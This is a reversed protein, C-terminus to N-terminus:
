IKKLAEEQDIEHLKNIMPEIQGDMFGPLNSLSFGIRHDTVRDQPFNYTRIKESRDGTGIQSKRADGRKKAEEEEKLALLRSRLVRFAKEKNKIQSKEDQCSVILGTPLHTLRVASDTTNVSQGGPGSSRFVDVRVDNPAIEIDVEEAEPLVAVTVTSTHVRGSSETEPVRQVRHVGSEYKLWKYTNKGKISFIIEKFGGIENENSDLIEIELKKQEAFKAYMRFLETAFLASEDGGAGARIEMIVNKSDNEDKPLLEVEIKKILDEKERKIRAVEEEAMAVLEPDTEVKIMSLTQELNEQSRKLKEFLEILGIMESHKKQLKTIKRHDNLNVPDTLNIEIEDFEKRIKEYKELM